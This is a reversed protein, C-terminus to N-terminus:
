ILLCIRHQPLLRSILNGCDYRRKPSDTAIFSRLTFNSLGIYTTHVDKIYGLCTQVFKMVLVHCRQKM